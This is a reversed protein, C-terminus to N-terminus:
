LSPSSSEYFIRFCFIDQCQGKLSKLIDNIVHQGCIIQITRVQCVYFMTGRLNNVHEGFDGGATDRTNEFQEILSNMKKILLLTEHGKMEHFGKKNMLFLSSNIDESPKEAM